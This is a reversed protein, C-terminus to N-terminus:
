SRCTGSTCAAHGGGVYRLWSAELLRVLLSPADHRLCHLIVAAFLRALVLSGGCALVARMWPQYWSVVFVLTAVAVWALARIVHAPVRVPFVRRAPIALLAPAPRTM